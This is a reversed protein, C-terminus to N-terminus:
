LWVSDRIAAEIADVALWFERAAKLGHLSGDRRLVIAPEASSQASPVTVFRGSCGAILGPGTGELAETRGWFPVGEAALQFLGHVVRADAGNHRLRGPAEDSSERIFGLSEFKKADLDRCRIYLPVANRVDYFTYVHMRDGLQYPAQALILLKPSFEHLLSTRYCFSNGPM